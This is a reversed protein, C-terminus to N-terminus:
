APHGPDIDGVAALRLPTCSSGASVDLPALLVGVHDGHSREPLLDIEGVFRNPCAALRPVGHEDASWDVAALKDVGDDATQGGFHAALDHQDAALLHVGLHRARRVLSWTHNAKSIWVVYGPPDISAQSHFGVLCGDREGDVAVTVVLMSSDANAVFRDFARGM